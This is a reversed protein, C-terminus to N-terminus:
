KCLDEFRTNITQVACVNRGSRVARRSAWSTAAILIRATDRNVLARNLEPM